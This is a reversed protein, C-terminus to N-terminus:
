LHISQCIFKIFDMRRIIEDNDFVGVSRKFRVANIGGFSSMGAGGYDSIFKPYFALIINNSLVSNDDVLTGVNKYVSVSYAPGALLMLNTTLDYNRKLWMMEKVGLNHMQKLIFTLASYQENTIFAFRKSVNDLISSVALLQPRMWMMNTNENYYNGTVCWYLAKYFELYINHLKLLISTGLEINNSRNMKLKIKLGIPLGYKVDVSQDPEILYNRLEPCITISYMYLVDLLVMTIPDIVRNLRRLDKVDNIHTFNKLAYNITAAPYAMVHIHFRRETMLSPRDSTNPDYNMASAICYTTENLKNMYEFAANFMYGATQAILKIQNENCEFISTHFDKTGDMIMCEYLAHPSTKNILDINLGDIEFRKIVNPLYESDYDISANIQKSPKASSIGKVPQMLVVKYDNNLEYYKM